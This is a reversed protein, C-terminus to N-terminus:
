TSSQQSRENRINASLAIMAQLRQYFAEKVLSAEASQREAFALFERAKAVEPDLQIKAAVKDETTKEGAAAATQRIRLGTAAQVEKLNQSAADRKLALRTAILAFHAYWGPQEAVEKNLTAEHLMLDDPLTLVSKHGDVELTIKLKEAM